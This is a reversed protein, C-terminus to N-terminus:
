TQAVDFSHGLQRRKHILPTFNEFNKFSELMLLQRVFYSLPVKFAGLIATAAM